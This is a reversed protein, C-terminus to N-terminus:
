NIFLGARKERVFGSARSLAVEPGSGPASGVSGKGVFARL